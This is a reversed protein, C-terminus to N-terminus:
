IAWTPFIIQWHVGHSQMKNRLCSLFKTNRFSKVGGGLNACGQISSFDGELNMLSIHYKRAHKLRKTATFSAKELETVKKVRNIDELRYKHVNPGLGTSKITMSSAARSLNSSGAIEVAAGRDV